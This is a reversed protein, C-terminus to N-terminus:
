ARRDARRAREGAFAVVGGLVALAVSAPIQLGHLFPLHNVLFWSPEGGVVNNITGGVGQVIMIIGLAELM